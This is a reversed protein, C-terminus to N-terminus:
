QGSGWRYVAEVCRGSGLVYVCECLTRLLPLRRGALDVAADRTQGGPSSAVQVTLEGGAGAVRHRLTFHVSGRELAALRAEREAFYRAAGNPSTRLDPDLGLLVHDLAHVYLESLITVLAARHPQLGQIETLLRLLHPVPDFTRLALIEVLLSAEWGSAARTAPERRDAALSHSLETDIEVLTLDDAQGAGRIEHVSDVIWDFQRTAPVPAEFCAEYGQQSFRGGTAIPADILGDTCAFVRDGLELSIVQVARDFRAADLIGLALHRSPVRARIRNDPGVVFLPPIGGNWVTLRREISDVSGICAACFMESPLLSKLKSNMTEAIDAVGFGSTTMSYFIDSAPLAGIAASLGHGTFDAILFHLEGTARTATLFLDGNFVSSSTLLSRVGGDEAKERRIIANFVKEAIRQEEVLQTQYRSIEEHQAVVRGHLDRIRLMADIKSKLVIHSYPKTLFADGGVAVCKALAEDDHVATVFIIPVFEDGAIERIRRVAEYGDMRPMLIDMLVLHPKEERFREIAQEGDPVVVVSYGFRELMRRMIVGSAAHDEAVLVKLAAQSAGM